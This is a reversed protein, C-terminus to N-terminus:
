ASQSQKGERCLNLQERLDNIVSLQFENSEKLVENAQKLGDIQGKYANLLETNQMPETKHNYSSEPTHIHTEAKTEGNLIYEQTVGFIQVLLQLTAKSMSHGSEFKSIASFTKNIREALEAQNWDKEQRLKKLRKGRDVDHISHNKM